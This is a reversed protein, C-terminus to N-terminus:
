FSKGGSSKYKKQLLQNYWESPLRSHNRIQLGFYSIHDTKASLIVKLESRFNIQNQFSHTNNTEQHSKENLIKDSERHVNQTQLHSCKMRGKLIHTILVHQLTDTKPWVVIAPLLEQLPWLDSKHCHPEM